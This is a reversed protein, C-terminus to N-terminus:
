TKGKLLMEKAQAHPHGTPRARPRSYAALAGGLTCVRGDNWRVRVENIKSAIYTSGGTDPHNLM